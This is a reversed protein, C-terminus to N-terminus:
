IKSAISAPCWVQQKLRQLADLKVKCGGPKPYLNVLYAFSLGLSLWDDQFQYQGQSVAELRPSTFTPTGVQLINRVSLDAATCSVDFDNLLLSSDHRLLMNDPKIDRHLVGLDHLAALALAAQLLCGTCQHIPKSFHTLDNCCRHAISLL